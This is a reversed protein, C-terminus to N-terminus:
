PEKGGPAPSLRELWAQAQPQGPRIKLVVSFARAAGARDGARDLAVGLNYLPMWDDPALRSAREFARAAEDWRELLALANGTAQLLEPSEGALTIAALFHALAERGQGAKALRKGLFQHGQATGGGMAMARGFEEEAEDLRGELALAKALLEHAEPSAPGQSVGRELMELGKEREGRSMLLAGYRILAESHGPHDALVEQLLRAAEEKRGADWLAVAYLTQAYPDGPQARVAETWFAVRDRYVESRARSAGALALVALVCATGAALSGRRGLRRAAEHAGLVVAVAVAALPLYMRKESLLHALPLFSSTVALCLFFWGLVAGMPQRKAVQHLTLVLLGGVLVWALLSSDPVGAAVGVPLSQDQGAPLFALALYHAIAGPQALLHELSKGLGGPSVTSRVTHGQLLLWALLGWGPLFSAYLRVHRVLARGYGPSALIGDLLLVALPATVASEKSGCALLFAAGSLVQWRGPAPSQWSRLASYLTLLYFLGMMSSLRQTLYTVAETHLPHVAWLLSAALALPLAHAGFRGSLRPLLFTRRLISFLTLAALLHILLNTAHFSWPEPGSIAWNVAHSLNIVPRGATGTSLSGSLVRGLHGLDQISPNRLIDQEDDLIFGFSLSSSWAAWVAVALLVVAAALAFRPPLFPSDRTM